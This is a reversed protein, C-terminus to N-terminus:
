YHTRGGWGERLVSTLEPSYIPLPGRTWLCYRVPWAGGSPTAGLVDLPWRRVQGHDACSRTDRGCSSSRLSHDESPGARSSRRRSPANILIARVARSSGAAEPAPEGLRQRMRAALVGEVRRLVERRPTRSSPWATPSSRCFGGDWVLQRAIEEVPIDSQARSGAGRREGPFTLDPRPPLLCHSCSRRPLTQFESCLYDYFTAIASLLDGVRGRWAWSPM